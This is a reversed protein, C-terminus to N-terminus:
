SREVPPHYSSQREVPATRFDGSGAIVEGPGLTIHRATGFGKLVAGRLDPDPETFDGGGALEAFRVSIPGLVQGGDGITTPGLIEAANVIRTRSGIRVVAGHAKIQAGGQGITNGDGISVTGGGGVLILTGPWFVNGSGIECTSDDDCEIVVNPYFVNGDGLRVRDSLILSHPDHILNM